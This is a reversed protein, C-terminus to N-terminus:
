NKDQEMASNPRRVIGYNEHRQINPHRTSQYAEINNLVRYSAYTM